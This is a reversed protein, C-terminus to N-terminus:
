DCISVCMFLCLSYFSSTETTFHQCSSRWSWCSAHRRAVTPMWCRGSFGGGCGPFCTAASLSLVPKISSLGAKFLFYVLNLLWYWPEDGSFQEATWGGDDKVAVMTSNTLLLHVTEAVGVLDVQSTCSPPTLITFSTYDACLPCTIQLLVLQPPAKPELLGLSIYNQASPVQQVSTVDQQLDLDLSSSWDVPFVWDPSRFGRSPRSGFYIWM